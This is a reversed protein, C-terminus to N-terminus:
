PKHPRFMLDFWLNWTKGGDTSRVATERVGNQAPKWTGRVERRQGPAPYDVGSLVMEEGQMKGEIVLLQGRDTVWTQHWVHRSSDYISFSQGKVGNAGDYRELVVCRDLLPDVRARAVPKGSENVDFADWDGIWFDFQRYEPATCAVTKAAEGRPGPYADLNALGSFLVLASFLLAKWM